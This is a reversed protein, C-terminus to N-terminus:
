VEEPVMLFMKHKTTKWDWQFVTPGSKFGFRFALVKKKCSSARTVLWEPTISNHETGFEQLMCISMPNIEKPKQEVSM